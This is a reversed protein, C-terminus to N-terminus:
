PRRRRRRQRCSLLWVVVDFKISSLIHYNSLFKVCVYIKTCFFIKGEM